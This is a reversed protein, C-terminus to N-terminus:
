EQPAPLPRIPKDKPPIPGNMRDLRWKKGAADNSNTPDADSKARNCGRCAHVKNGKNNGGGKSTPKYHDTQGENSPPTVGKQSKQADQTTTGCYECKGGAEQKVEENVQQDSKQLPQFAEDTLTHLSKYGTLTPDDFPLQHIFDAANDFWGKGAAYGAAAGGVVIGIANDLIAQGEPSNAIEEVYIVCAPCHGNSDTTSLPNNRVYGYLNLSQPDTPNAYPVAEPSDSWDPSMFRGQSNNYYRAGFYDLNSEFDHYQGTFNLPTWDSIIGQTNDLWDGFPLSTINQNSPYQPYNSNPLDRNRETGLWDAHAFVLNGAYTALHRNGAFVEGRWGTGGNPSETHVLHGQPDYVFETTGSPDPTNGGSNVSSTNDKSARHGEGDYTYIATNGGDVKILRNEADYTYSHTGDNILNGASDYTYGDIRNNGGSFTLLMSHPGNQQWRNGFRDYVYNYVAAGNNQNAGTLRNFQDYSYTWNGNSSDNAALVDGNPAFSTISFSYVPYGNFTITSSQQRGRNDYSYAEIEGYGTSDSTIQGLANYHVNSLLNTPWASQSDTVGFIRAATNYTYTATHWQGDTQSTMNGMLDYTNQIPHGANCDSPQYELRGVPRGISDYDYLMTLCNITTWAAMRGIANQRAGAWSPPIDYYYTPRDIEGDSYSKTVLRNLTDYTYTTTLTASGTQNPAPAIKTFLNTNADYTYNITGSEPNSASTLRSLSDYSFTRAAIGSQNVQLLNDLADYQYTTLFGTGPLDLGCSAPTGSSGILSSSSAGGAGVFPGPAVECVSALRGLGDSQSIRTVRQTGNGEDQAQVARGTYTTLVTSSDPKTIQTTRGLADYTYTTLGYPPNTDSTTCYPNSVTHVRGFGDYTTDTRDGSACDPDSTLATRTTHGIGDFATLTTLNTSSSIKKTATVSPSPTSSNYPSDNYCYTTQGGDPYTVTSLRDLGDPLSCGPPPTNYTYTTVQSNQDTHSRVLGDNYGWSFTETHAVGTNPYTVQKLYANTQGPPTGTGSAFNDTYSYTTAHNSGSMDGCAINGCADTISAVQGTDYYAYTTTPSTGSNLWHTISTANGRPTSVSALGTAAGSATVASGDYAYTSQKVQNGSGDFVTVSDPEDLINANTFTHYAISTRRRLPGLASSNLGSSLTTGSPLSACSPNGPYAGESQFPYEYESLVRNNTVSDYCRLVTAGQGNDLITQSGIMAYEDLWTKNVTKYTRGSGCNPVCDQYVIQQEVPIQNTQWSYSYGSSANVPGGGQAVASYKYTTETMQNTLRDTSTVTTTKSSWLPSSGFPPTTYTFQQHLAETSGDYSVYRDTIAPTNFSAYCSFTGGIGPNYYSQLTVASLLNPGWVYRVYGGGPFNIQTLENYTGGYIFTYKQGNPLDIESVAKIQLSQTGGGFQCTYQTQTIKNSVSPVSVTITTWHVVINGALGSVTLQDGSSSGIGTWSVIQRGLTDSYYGAGFQQGTNSGGTLAIQNGNRDTITQALL